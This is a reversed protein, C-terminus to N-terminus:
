GVVWTAEFQVKGDSNYKVTYYTPPSSNTTPVLQVRFNGDVVRVTASQQVINSLDGAEFSSWSVMLLGDFRTGDAKYLVDQITTLPPQGWAVMAACTAAAILRGMSM